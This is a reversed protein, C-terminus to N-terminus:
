LAQDSPPLLSHLWQHAPWPTPLISPASFYEEAVWHEYSQVLDVETFTPNTIAPLQFNFSTNQVTTANGENRHSQIGTVTSM